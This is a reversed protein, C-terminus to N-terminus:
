NFWGARELQRRATKFEVRILPSTEADWRTELM